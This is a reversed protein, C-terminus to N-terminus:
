KKVTGKSLKNPSCNLKSEIDGRWGIHRIHESIPKISNVFIIFVINSYPNTRQHPCDPVASIVNNKVLSCM